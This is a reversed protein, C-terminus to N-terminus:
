RAPLGVVELIQAAPSEPPAELALHTGTRAARAVFEFITQVAPSGLHTVAALDLVADSTGARTARTLAAHLLDTALEDLPGSAIVRAADAHIDLEESEDLVRAGSEEAVARLLAVPRTLRQTLEVRTGRGTRVMRMADALGSAMMLGRGRGHSERPERWRGRDGVTICVTGDDELRGDVEIIHDPEAQAGPEGYAHEVVNAALEVVAHGLGVHDILGAGLGDLWTNIRHRVDPVADPTAPSRLAFPEPRTARAAILVAGDDTCGQHPVMTHLMRDGVDDARQVASVTHRTEVLAKAAADALMGQGAALDRGGSTVLGDTYLAVMQDPELRTTRTTLHGGTGLPRTPTARLFTSESPQVLLPPPHGVTAWEFLGDDLGLTAVCLTTACLEPHTHAYRDLSELSQLLGAGAGLRERLIARVQAGAVPAEPGSGVVDAILLAVKRGPLPLADLMDGRSGPPEESLLYKGSLAVGPLVPLSAPVHSASSM